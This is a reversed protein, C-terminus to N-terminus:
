LDISLIHILWKEITKLPICNKLYFDPHNPCSRGKEECDYNQGKQHELIFYLFLNLISLNFLM